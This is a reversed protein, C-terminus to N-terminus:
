LFVKETVLKSILGRGTIPLTCAELIKPAGTKTNHEMTVIVKSGSAFLDM